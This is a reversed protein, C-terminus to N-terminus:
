KRKYTICTVIINFTLKVRTANHHQDSIRKTNGRFLQSTSTANIKPFTLSREQSDQFLM